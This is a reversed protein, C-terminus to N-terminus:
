HAPTCVCGRYSEATLNSLACSYQPWFAKIEASVDRVYYDRIYSQSAETQAGPDAAFEAILKGVSAASFDPEHFAEAFDYERAWEADLGTM